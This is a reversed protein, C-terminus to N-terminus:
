RTQFYRTPKRFAMNPIAQYFKPCLSMYDMDSKHREYSGFRRGRGELEAIRWLTCGVDPNHVSFTGIM